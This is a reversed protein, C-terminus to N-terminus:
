GAAYETVRGDYIPRGIIEGSGDALYEPALRPEEGRAVQLGALVKAAHFGGIVLMRREVNMLVDIAKGTDMPGTVGDAFMQKLRPAPADGPRFPEGRSGIIACRPTKFVDENLGAALSQPDLYPSHSAFRHKLIPSRRTRVSPFQDETARVIQQVEQLPGAILLTHRQRRDKIFVNPAIQRRDILGTVFHDLDDAPAGLLLVQSLSRIQGEVAMQRRVLKNFAFVHDIYDLASYAKAFLFASTAGGSYFGVARVVLRYRWELYFAILANLGTQYLKALYIDALEGRPANILSILDVALRSKFADVLAAVDPVLNIAGEVDRVLSEPLTCYTREEDVSLRAFYLSCPLGDVIATWRAALGDALGVSGTLQDVM